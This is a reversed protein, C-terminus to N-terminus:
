NCLLCYSSVCGVHVHVHSKTYYTTMQVLLSVSLIWRRPGMPLMNKGKLTAGMLISFINIPM